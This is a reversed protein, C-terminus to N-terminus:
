LLSVNMIEYPPIFREHIKLKELIRMILVTNSQRYGGLTKEVKMMCISIM